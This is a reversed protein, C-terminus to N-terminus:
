PMKGGKGTCLEIARGLPVFRELLERQERQMVQGKDKLEDVGREKSFHMNEMFTWERVSYIQHVAALTLWVVDQVNHQRSAEKVM